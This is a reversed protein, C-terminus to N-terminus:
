PITRPSNRRRAWLIILVVAMLNGFDSTRDTDGQFLAAAADKANGAAETKVLIPGAWSNPVVDVIALKYLFQHATGALIVARGSFM